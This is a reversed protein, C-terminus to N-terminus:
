RGPAVRTSAVIQRIVPLSAEYDAPTATGTVRVVDAAVGADVVTVAVVQIVTGVAETAYAFESVWWAAGGFEVLAADVPAFEPLGRVYEDIAASAAELTHGAAARTIGVVVNPSFADAGRDDVVALVSGAVPRPTWTGPHELTVSAFAPFAPSPFSAEPM